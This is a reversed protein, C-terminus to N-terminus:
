RWKKNLDDTKMNIMLRKRTLTEAPFESANEVLERRLRICKYRWQLVRAALDMEYTMIKCIKAIPGLVSFEDAFRPGIFALLHSLNLAHPHIGNTLIFPLAKNLISESVKNIYNVAEKHRDLLRGVM